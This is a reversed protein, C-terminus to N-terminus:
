EIYVGMGTASIRYHDGGLGILGYDIKLNVVGNGGADKIKKSLKILSEDKGEKLSNMVRVEVKKPESHILRKDKEVITTTHFQGIVSYKKQTIDTSTIFYFNLSNILKNSDEENFYHVTEIIIKHPQKVINKYYFYELKNHASRTIRQFIGLLYSGIGFVVVLIIYNVLTPFAAQLIVGISLITIANVGLAPNKLIFSYFTTYIFLIFASIAGIDEGIIKEAFYTEVYGAGLPAFILGLNWGFIAIHFYLFFAYIALGIFTGFSICLISERIYTVKVERERFNMNNM